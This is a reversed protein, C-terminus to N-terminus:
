DKGMWLGLVNGEPDQFLAFYGFDGVSTKERLITGGNDVIKELVSDMDEVLIYNIIGGPQVEEVKMFGGGPYTGTEFLAYESGPDKRIKWDFVKSYFECAREIDTVPIEIHCFGGRMKAEKRKWIIFSVRELPLLLYFSTSSM